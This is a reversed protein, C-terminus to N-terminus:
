YVKAIERRIVEGTSDIVWSYLRAKVTDNKHYKWQSPRGYIGSGRHTETHTLQYEESKVSIKVQYHHTSAFWHKKNISTVVVDIDKQYLHPQEKRELSMNETQQVACGSLIFLLLLAFLITKKRKIMIFDAREKAQVLLM